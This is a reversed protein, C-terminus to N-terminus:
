LFNLSGVTNFCINCEHSNQKVSKSGLIQRTVDNLTKVFVSRVKNKNMVDNIEISSIQVVTNIRHVKKCIEYRWQFLECNKNCHKQNLDYLFLFLDADILPIDNFSVHTKM